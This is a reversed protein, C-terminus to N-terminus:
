CCWPCPMFGVRSSSSTSASAVCKAPRRAITLAIGHFATSSEGNRRGGSSRATANTRPSFATSTWNAAGAVSPCTRQGEANPENGPLLQPRGDAGIRFPFALHRGLPRAPDRLHRTDLPHDSDAM